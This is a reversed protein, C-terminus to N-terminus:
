RSYKRYVKSEMPRRNKPEGDSERSTYFVCIRICKYISVYM